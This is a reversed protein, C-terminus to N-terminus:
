RAAKKKEPQTVSGFQVALKKFFGNYNTKIVEFALIFMDQVESCFLENAVDETLLTAKGTEDNEYSIAKGEILLHKLVQELKDGSLAAFAESVINTVEGDVEIDLLGQDKGTKSMIPALGSVIPLIVSALEGSLRAAKFAPFPRIWFTTEGIQVQHTELQKM